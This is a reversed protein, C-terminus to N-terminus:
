RGRRPLHLSTPHAPWGAFGAGEPRWGRRLGRREAARPQMVASLVSFAAPRALDPRECAHGHEKNNASISLCPRQAVAAPQNRSARCPPELEAPPLERLSVAERGADVRFRPCRDPEEPGGTSPLHGPNHIGHGKV